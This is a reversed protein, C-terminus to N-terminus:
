FRPGCYWLPSLYCACNQCLDCGQIVPQCTAPRICFAMCLNWDLGNQVIALDHLSPDIEQQFGVAAPNKQVM